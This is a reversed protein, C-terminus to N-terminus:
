ALNFSPGSLRFLIVRLITLSKPCDDSRIDNFGLFCKIIFPLSIATASKIFTRISLASCYLGLSECIDMVIDFNSCYALNSIEFAPGPM